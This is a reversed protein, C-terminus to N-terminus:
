AIFYMEHFFIMELRWTVFIFFLYVFLYVRHIGACISSYPSDIPFGDMSFRRTEVKGESQKWPIQKCPEKTFSVDDIALVQGGSLKNFGM